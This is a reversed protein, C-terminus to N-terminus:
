HERTYALFPNIPAYADTLVIADDLTQVPFAYDLLYAKEPLNDAAPSMGASAPAVLVMLAGCDFGYVKPFVSAMTRIESALFSSNERSIYTMLFVGKESIHNKAITFFEKTVM